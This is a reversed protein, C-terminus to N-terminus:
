SYIRFSKVSKRIVATIKVRVTHLFFGGGAVCGGERETGYCLNDNNKNQKLVFVNQRTVRGAM